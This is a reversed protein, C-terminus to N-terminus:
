AAFKSSYVRGLQPVGSPSSAGAGPPGSASAPTTTSSSAEGTMSTQRRIGRKSDMHMLYGDAPLELVCTCTSIHWFHWLLCQYIGCWAAWLLLPSTHQSCCHCRQFIGAKTGRCCGSSICKNGESEGALTSRRQRVPKPSTAVVGPQATGTPMAAASTAIQPLRPLNNLMGPELRAAAPFSRPQQVVQKSTRGELLQEVDWVLASNHPHQQPPTSLGGAAQADPGSVPTQGGSPIPSPPQAARPLNDM